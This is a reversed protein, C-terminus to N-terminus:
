KGENNHCDSRLIIGHQQAYHLICSKLNECELESAVKQGSGFLLYYSYKHKVCLDNTDPVKGNNGFQLMQISTSFFCIPSTPKHTLFYCVSTYHRLLLLLCLLFALQEGTKNERCSTRMFPTASYPLLNPRAWYQM